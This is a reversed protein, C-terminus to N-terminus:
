FYHLALFLTTTFISLLLYYYGHKEACKSQVPFEASDLYLLVNYGWM